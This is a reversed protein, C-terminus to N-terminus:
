DAHEFSTWLPIQLLFFGNWQFPANFSVSAIEVQTGTEQSGAKGTGQVKGSCEQEETGAKGTSEERGNSGGQLYGEDPHRIREHEAHVSFM